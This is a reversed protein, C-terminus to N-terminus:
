ENQNKTVLLKWIFYILITVGSIVAIMFAM